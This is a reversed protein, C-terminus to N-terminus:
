LKRKYIRTTSDVSNPGIGGTIATILPPREQVVTLTNGDKSVSYRTVIQNSDSAGGAPMNRENVLVAKEWRTFSAFVKNRSIVDSKNQEGRKDAYLVTTSAPEGAGAEIEITVVVGNLQINMNRGIKVPKRYTKMNEGVNLVPGPADAYAKDFIWTGVIRQRLDAYKSDQGAVTCSLFLVAALVFLTLKMISTIVVGIEM